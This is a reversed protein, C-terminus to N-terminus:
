QSVESYGFESGKYYLRVRLHTNLTGDANLTGPQDAVVRIVDNFSPTGALGTQRLEFGSDANIKEFTGSIPLSKGVSSYYYDPYAILTAVGHTPLTRNQTEIYLDADNDWSDCSATGFNWGSILDCIRAYEELFDRYRSSDTIVFQGAWINGLSGNGNNPIGGEIKVCQLTSPEIGHGTEGCQQLCANHAPSYIQGVGCVPPSVAGPGSGKKKDGCGIGTGMFLFLSSLIFLRYITKM